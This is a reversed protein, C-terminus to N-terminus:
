IVYKNDPAIAMTFDMHLPYIVNRYADSLTKGATLEVKICNSHCTDPLENIWKYFNTELLNIFAPPSNRKIYLQIYEEKCDVSPYVLVYNMNNAALANRVEVHTSCFAIGKLTKLHEIYNNPFDPHRVNESAWSFKSSDSDFVPVTSENNKFQNYLYTKGIGPFGCVITTKHKM